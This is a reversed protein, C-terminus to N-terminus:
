NKDLCREELIQIRDVNNPLKITNICDIKDYDDLGLTTNIQRMINIRVNEKAGMLHIIFDGYNYNLIHTNFSNEPFIKVKPHSIKTCYQSFKLDPKSNPYLEKVIEYFIVNQDNHAHEIPSNWVKKFLEYAWPTNKIIMVGSNVCEKQYYIDLCLFLDISPNQNIFSEITTDYNAIIADADIWILYQHSQLNKLIAAIKNWCFSFSKNFPENYIIMGYGYKQAYAMINLMSYKAYSLINPTYFYVFSIKAQPNYNLQPKIDKIQYVFETNNNTINEFNEFIKYCSFILIILIILIIFIKKEFNEFM